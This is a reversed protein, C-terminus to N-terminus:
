LASRPVLQDPNVGHQGLWEFVGRVTGPDMGGYGGYTMGGTQLAPDNMVEGVIEYRGAFRAPGHEEVQWPTHDPVVPEISIAEYFVPLGFRDAPVDVDAGPYLTEQTFCVDATLTTYRVPHRRVFWPILAALPVIIIDLLLIALRWAPHPEQVWAAHWDGATKKLHDWWTAPVQVSARRQDVELMGRTFSGVYGSDKLTFTKMRDQLYGLPPLVSAGHGYGSV